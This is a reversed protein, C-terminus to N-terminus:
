LYFNSAILFRTFGYIFWGSIQRVIIGWDGGGTRGACECWIRRMSLLSLPVPYLVAKVNWWQVFWLCAGVIVVPTRNCCAVYELRTHLGFFCFFVM